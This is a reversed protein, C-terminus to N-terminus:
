EAATGHVRPVRMTLLILFSIVCLVAEVMFVGNSGYSQAVYGLGKNALFGGLSSCSNIFAISVALGAPSLLSPPIAWYPGYFSLIGLGFLVMGFMRMGMSPMSAIVVFAVGTLLMPLGAHWKREGTKDSHAGWLPMAFMACVFPLAMILGVQTDTLGDAFQKVQGPLWYNSAQSAAQIFMYVLALKWLTANGLVTGLGIKQTGTKGTNERALEATLWESQQPTLWRADKPTDALVFFTAVGLLVTPIGEIAFLWRWGEYNPTNVHQVIWGSMPAAIVTSVAIALMFLSTVRAREKAPFWCALYYIMGPFFGAEFVGLLFRAGIVHDVNQAFFMLCTVLGWAIIISGIWRRAGLRQLMMNAPIQFLLYSIFFASAITGFDTKSINLAENMQLAAFGVNVRDMYNFLYLIFAFPIIKRKVIRIVNEGFHPSEAISM